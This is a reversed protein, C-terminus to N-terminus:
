VCVCLCLSVGVAVSASKYLVCLCLFVVCVPVSVCRVTIFPTRGDVGVATPDTRAILDQTAPDTTNLRLAENVDYVRSASPLALGGGM